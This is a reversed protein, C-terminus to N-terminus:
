AARSRFRKGASQVVLGRLELGLLAELVAAGTLQAKNILVELQCVEHRLADLVARENPALDLLERAVRARALRDVMAPAIEALVDEASRVLVAGGRILGHAGAHGARNVPGPVAFVERNQELACAATILSGSREAAEVVITGLALGSVIRNRRPFHGRLPPCGLTFETVLAGREAIRDALSAHAPPYVRDMGTALVAVTRGEGIAGRHAAADIGRALGSVVVLGAAALDTALRAAVDLGYTSARRAGVIAIAPQDLCSARGRVFLVPPPVAIQRLRAPYSADSWAIVAVGRRDLAAVEVDAAARAADMGRIVEAPVGHRGLTAPAARVTREASGLARVLAFARRVSLGDLLALTVWAVRERLQAVECEM